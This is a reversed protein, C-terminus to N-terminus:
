VLKCGGSTGRGRRNPSCGRGNLWRAMGGVAAGLVPATGAAGVDVGIKGGVAVGTVGGVAVGCRGGVGAGTKGVGVGTGGVGVGM